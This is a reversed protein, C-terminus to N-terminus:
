RVVRNFAEVVVILASHIVLYIYPELVIPYSLLGTVLVIFLTTLAPIWLSSEYKVIRHLVVGPGIVSVYIMLATLVLDLISNAFFSIVSVTTFVLIAAAKKRAEPQDLGFSKPLLDDRVTANLNFTFSDLTSLIAALLVMAPVLGALKLESTFYYPLISEADEVRIGNKAALHGIVVSVSVVTFYIAVGILTGTIANSRDKASRARIWVDQSLPVFVLSLSLLLITRLDLETQSVPESSTEASSLALVGIVAPILFLIMVVFFQIVDTRTVAGIGGRFIYMSILLFAGASILSAYQSGVYPAFIKSLAVVQAAALLTYVFVTAAAYVITRTQNGSALYASIGEGVEPLSRFLLATAVIAGGILVVVPDILGVLGNAYGIGAMAITAAGGIFSMSLGAAIRFWSLDGVMAAQNQKRRSTFGVILFLAAAALLLALDM